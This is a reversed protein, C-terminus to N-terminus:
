IKYTLIIINKLGFLKNMYFNNIESKSILIVCNIVDKVRM